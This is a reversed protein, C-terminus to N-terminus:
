ALSLTTPLTRLLPLHTSSHHLYSSSPPLITFSRTSYPLPPLKTFSLYFFLTYFYLTIESGGSTKKQSFFGVSWYCAELSYCSVSWRFSDTPFKNEAFNPFDTSELGDMVFKRRLATPSRFAFLSHHLFTTHVLLFFMIIHSLLHLSLSHLLTLFFFFPFSHSLSNAALSLM